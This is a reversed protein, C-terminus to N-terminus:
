KIKRCSRFMKSICSQCLCIYFGGFTLVRLVLSNPIIKIYKVESKPQGCKECTDSM